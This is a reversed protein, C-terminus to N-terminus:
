FFDGSANICSEWQPLHSCIGGASIKKPQQRFWQAVAEHVDKDSTIPGFIHFQTAILGLQICSTQAGRMAQSETKRLETPTSMMRRCSMAM